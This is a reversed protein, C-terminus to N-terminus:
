RLRKKKKKLLKVTVILAPTSQQENENLLVSYHMSSMKFCHLSIAYNSIQYDLGFTETISDSM